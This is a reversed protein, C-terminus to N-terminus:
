EAASVEVNAISATPPQSSGGPTCTWTAGSGSCSIWGNNAAGVPLGNGSGDLVRSYVSAGAGPVTGSFTITWSQVLTPNSSNLTYSVGAITYGSVGSTGDGAKGGGGAGFTNTATFAFGLTTLAVTVLVTLVVGHRRRIRRLRSKFM